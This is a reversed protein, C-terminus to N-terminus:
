PMFGSSPWLSGSMFITAAALLLRRGFSVLISLHLGSIALLHATGTDAFDGSLSDPINDDTDGLM